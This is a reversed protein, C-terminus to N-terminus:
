LTFDDDTTTTATTREAKDEEQEPISERDYGGKFAVTDKRNLDGGFLKGLHDCADKIAQSKAIPVAMQVAEAKIQTLDSAKAESNVQFGKAGVGDHYDWELTVPNMYHVRVTVVAANLMQKVDLVEIRFRQFIRRLLFEVKDIPMYESKVMPHKKVWKAHPPQCLLMNLEDNKFAQEPDHHLEVLTPLKNM